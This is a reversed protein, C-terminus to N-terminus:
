RFDSRTLGDLCRPDSLLLSQGSLANLGLLFGSPEFDRPGFGDFCSFEPAAIRDLALANANLKSDLGVADCRLLRALHEADLLLLDISIASSSRAIASEEFFDSRM